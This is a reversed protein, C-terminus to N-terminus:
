LIWRTFNLFVRCTVLLRPSVHWFYLLISGQENCPQHHHHSRRHICPVSASKGAAGVSKLYWFFSRSEGGWELAGSERRRRSRLVTGYDFSLRVVFFRVCWAPASAATRKAKWKERTANWTHGTSPRACLLPRRRSARLKHRRPRGTWRIRFRREKLWWRETELSRASTDNPARCRSCFERLSWDIMWQNM